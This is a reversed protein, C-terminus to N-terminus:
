RPRPGRPLPTVTTMTGGLLRGDRAYGGLAHDALRDLAPLVRPEDGAAPAVDVVHGQRPHQVRGEDAAVTRAARDGVEVDAGGPPVGTHDGDERGRLHVAGGVLEPDGHHARVRTVRRAAHQGVTVDPVHALGDRDDDGLRAVDRLVGHLQDVDVDVRQRRHHVHERRDLVGVDEHVRLQPGVDRAVHRGVHRPEVLPQRRRRVREGLREVLVAVHLDGHLGAPDHRGHSRM